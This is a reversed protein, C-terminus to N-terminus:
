LPDSGGAPSDEGMRYEVLLADLQWRDARPRYSHGDTECAWTMYGQGPDPRYSHPQGCERCGALWEWPVEGALDLMTM